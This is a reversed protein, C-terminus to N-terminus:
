VRVRHTGVKSSTAYDLIVTGCTRELIAEPPCPASLPLYTLTRDGSRLLCDPEKWQRGFKIEFADKYRRSRFSGPYISLSYDRTFPWVNRRPRFAAAVIYCNPGGQHHIHIGLASDYSEHVDRAQLEINSVNVSLFEARSPLFDLMKTKVKMWLVGLAGAAVGGLIKSLESTISGWLWHLDNM